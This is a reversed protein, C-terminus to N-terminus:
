SRSPICVPHTYMPFASLFILHRMSRYAITVDCKGCRQEWINTGMHALQMGNFTTNWYHHAGPNNEQEVLGPEFNDEMPTVTEVMRGDTHVGRPHIHFFHQSGISEISDIRFM